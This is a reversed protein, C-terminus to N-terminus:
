KGASQGVGLGMVAKEVMYSCCNRLSNWFHGSHTGAAVDLMGSVGHTGESRGPQSEHWLWLMAGTGLAAARACGPGALGWGRERGVCESLSLVLDWDRSRGGFGPFWM